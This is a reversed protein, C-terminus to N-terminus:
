ACVRARVEVVVDFGAAVGEMDAHWESQGRAGGTLRAVRVNSIAIPSDGLRLRTLRLASLSGPRARDLQRQVTVQLFASLRQELFLPWLAAVLASLWASPADTANAARAAVATAAATGIRRIRPAEWRVFAAALLVCACPECAQRLQWCRWGYLGLLLAAGSMAPAAHAARLCGARARCWLRLLAGLAPVGAVRLLAVALLHSVTVAAPRLAVRQAGLAQPDDGRVECDAQPRGPADGEGLEARFAGARCFLTVAGLPAPPSSPDRPGAVVELAEPAGDLPLQAYM